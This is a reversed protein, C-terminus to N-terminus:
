NYQICEVKFLPINIIEIGNITTNFNYTDEGDSEPRFFLVKM